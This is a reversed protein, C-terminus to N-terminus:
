QPRKKFYYYSAAYHSITVICNVVVIGILSYGLSEKSGNVAFGLAAGVLGGSTALIHLHAIGLRTFRIGAYVLFTYLESM